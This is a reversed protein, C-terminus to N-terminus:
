YAIELRNRLVSTDWVLAEYIQIQSIARGRMAFEIQIPRLHEVNRNAKSGHRSQKFHLLATGAWSRLLLIFMEFVNCEQLLMGGLPAGSLSFKEAGSRTIILPEHDDCVRDMTKAM